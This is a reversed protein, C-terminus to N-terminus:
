SKKPVQPLKSGLQKTKEKVLSKNEFNEAFSLNDESLDM